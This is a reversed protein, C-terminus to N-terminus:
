EKICRVYFGPRNALFVNLSLDQTFSVKREPLCNIGFLIPNGSTNRSTTWYSVYENRFGFTGGIWIESGPPANFGSENNGPNEVWLEKSMLKIPATTSGGNFEVLNFFDTSTPIRWGDPALGRPDIMAYYNYIVGYLRESNQEWLYTTWAPKKEEHLKIWEETTKSEAIPDGNRFTKVKLNEKMWIQNGIQIGNSPIQDAQPEESDTCSFFIFISLIVISNKM